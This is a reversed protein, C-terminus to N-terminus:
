ADGKVWSLSLAAATGKITSKTLRPLGDAAHIATLFKMWRRAHEKPSLNERGIISTKCNFDFDNEGWANYGGEYRPILKVVFWQGPCIGHQLAWDAVPMESRWNWKGFAIEWLMYEDYMEVALWTGSPIQSLMQFELDDGNDRLVMYVFATNLEVHTKLNQLSKGDLSLLTLDEVVKDRLFVSPWKKGM